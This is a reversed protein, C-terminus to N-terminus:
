QMCLSMRAKTDLKGAEQGAWNGSSLNSVHKKLEKCMFYAFQDAINKSAV